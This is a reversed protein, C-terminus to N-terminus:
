RRRTNSKNQTQQRTQKYIFAFFEDYSMVSETRDRILYITDFELKREKQAESIIDISQHRYNISQLYQLIDNLKAIYQNDESSRLSLFSASKQKGNQHFNKQLFTDIVNSHADKGIYLIFSQGNNLLYLGDSSLSKSTLPSESPLYYEDNLTDEDLRMIDDIRYLSPRILLEINSQNIHLINTLLAIRQDIFVWKSVDRADAFARCKLLALTNLPWYRLSIPYDNESKM